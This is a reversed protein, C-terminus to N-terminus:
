GKKGQAQRTMNEIVIDFIDGLDTCYDILKGPKDTHFHIKMLEADGGVILSNGIFKAVIQQRLTEEDLLCQEILVQTDFKYEEM